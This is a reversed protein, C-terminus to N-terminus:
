RKFQLLLRLRHGGSITNSLSSDATADAADQVGETSSGQVNNESGQSPVAAAAPAAPHASPPPPEAGHLADSAGGEPAPADAAARAADHTRKEEALIQM